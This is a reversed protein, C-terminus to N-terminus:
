NLRTRKRDTEIYRSSQRGRIANTFELRAPIRLFAFLQDLNRKFEGLVYVVPAKPERVQKAHPHTISVLGSQGRLPHASADCRVLRVIQHRPLANRSVTIVTRGAVESVVSFRGRKFFLHGLLEAEEPSDAQIAGLAMVM